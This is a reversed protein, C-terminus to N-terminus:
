GDYLCQGTANVQTVEEGLRAAATDRMKGLVAASVEEPTLVKREGRYTM